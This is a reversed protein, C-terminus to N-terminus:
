TYKKYSHLLEEFTRLQVLNEEISGLVDINKDSPADQKGDRTVKEMIKRKDKELKKISLAFKSLAQIFPSYSYQLCEFELSRM